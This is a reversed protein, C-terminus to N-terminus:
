KKEGARFVTWPQSPRDKLISSMWYYQPHEALFKKADFATGCAAGWRASFSMESAMGANVVKGDVTGEPSYPQYSTYYQPDQEWHACLMRESPTNSKLYPDYHDSEFSKATEVDIKGEYENMLQKWRVRRAISSNKINIDDARTERRLLKIDEAINSGTFYGDIKKEFGIEKLGLELRAIENRNIDGILWANAYGGNNDKKMIECWEEISNAYQTARRM